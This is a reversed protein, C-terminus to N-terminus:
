RRIAAGLARAADEAARLGTEYAGHATSFSERSCAEGAFFIRDDVPAALADRRGVAGPKAYSYGGRAYPDMRWGHYQLPRIHAQFDSGFLGCLEDRAFAWAAPFGGRELEEALEGGFFAEVLPRGLPRFHYAGTARALAGFARSDAPLDDPGILEMYLKDALGLPLAHAAETKDPLAPRFLDPMAALVDTPLTVIVARAHLAGLATRIALNAGSRDISTVPCNTRVTLGEALGAIAGGLGGRVRWNVGSDEYAALDAASVKALEAGSYWTSVADILPNFPDGPALFADCAVDPADKPRAEVRERFAGIAAPFGAMRQAMPGVLAGPRAWPPPAKDLRRGQAEAIAAFPNTEASHLWGCGVDVAEGNPLTTTWARGGPRERAEVVLVSLGTRGLRQAAALGAAGAGVVIVDFESTSM